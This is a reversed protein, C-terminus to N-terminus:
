YSPGDEQSLGWGLPLEPLFKNSRNFGPKPKWSFSLRTFSRSSRSDAHAPLTSSLMEALCLALSGWHVWGLPRVAGSVSVWESGKLPWTQARRPGRQGLERSSDRACLSSGGAWGWCGTEMWRETLSFGQKRWPGCLVQDWCDWARQRGLVPLRLLGPWPQCSAGKSEQPSLFEKLESPSLSSEPKRWHLM